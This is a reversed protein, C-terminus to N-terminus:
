DTAAIIGDFEIPLSSPGRLNVHMRYEPPDAVLRPSRVRQAFKTIAIRAELRALPAGLCFHAGLGFSLHRNDRTTDFRGPDPFVDPDRNAAAIIAMVVEGAAVETDGFRMPELAVRPMLQVPPDFRLSEEIVHPALEANERLAALIEPRRLLALVTNSILNVTTEHGAILLLGCTAILEGHTLKDGEDEAAILQTLLDPGPDRRRQATLRDFYDDLEERATIMDALDVGFGAETPAAPDLLRALSASLRRLQPEDDLPVGLLECIVTIPLPYGLDEVADFGGTAAARDLTEDVFRAIRPALEAVVRPTFAKQVLRRLRTHDPADLFLFSPNHRPAILNTPVVAGPPTLAFRLKPMSNQSSARPDRLVTTCDAHRTLLVIPSDPLRLAGAARMKEYLPYPDARVSHDFLQLYSGAGSSETVTM